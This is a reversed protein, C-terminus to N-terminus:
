FEDRGPIGGEAETREGSEEEAREGRDATKHLGASNLCFLMFIFVLVIYVVCFSNQENACFAFCILLIM